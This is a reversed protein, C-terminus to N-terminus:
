FKINIKKHFFYKHVFIECIKKPFELRTFFICIGNSIWLNCLAPRNIIEYGWSQQLSKLREIGTSRAFFCALVSLDQSFFVVLESLDPDPSCYLNWYIRHLCKLLSVSLVCPQIQGFIWYWLGATADLDFHPDSLLIGPDMYLGSVAANTSRSSM